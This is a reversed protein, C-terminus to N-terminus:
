NTTPKQPRCKKIMIALMIPIILSWIIAFVSQAIRMKGFQEMSVVKLTLVPIFNGLIQLVIITAVATTLLSRAIGGNKALRCLLIALLIFIALQFVIQISASTYIGANYIHTFAGALKSCIAVVWPNEYKESMLSLESALDGIKPTVFVSLLGACKSTFSAINGIALFSLIGTCAWFIHNKCIVGPNVKTFESAIEAPKGIRCAAVLFAEQETLNQEKLQDIEENLHSQLENVDSETCTETELITKRWAAIEKTLDFM